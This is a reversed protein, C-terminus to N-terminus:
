GRISIGDMHAALQDAPVLNVGNAKFGGQAMVLPQAPAYKAACSPCYVFKGGLAARAAPIATPCAICSTTPASTAPLTNTRATRRVKAIDNSHNYPSM